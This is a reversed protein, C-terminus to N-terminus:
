FVWYHRANMNEYSKRSKPEEVNQGHIDGEEGEAYAKRYRGDSTAM